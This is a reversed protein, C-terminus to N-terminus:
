VPESTRRVPVGPSTATSAGEAAEPAGAGDAQVLRAVGDVDGDAVARGGRRELRDAAEAALSEAPVM